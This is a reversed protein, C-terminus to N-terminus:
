AARKRARFVIWTAITLGLLLLTGLLWVLGPQSESANLDQLTVATPTFTWYYDEVEGGLVAGGLDIKQEDLCDGDASADPSLRARLFFERDPGTGDFTGAPVPLSFPTPGATVYVDELPHESADDFDGDTNWDIWFDLCGNGTTTITIPGDGDAWIGNRVVGDEDAGDGDAIANPQPGPEDDWTAGLYLGSDTHRADDEVNVYTQPLDGFDMPCDSIDEVESDTITVTHYGDGFESLSVSKRLVARTEGVFKAEIVYIFDPDESGLGFHVLLPDQSGHGRGGNVGRIGSIVNGACDKLVITAGIADRPATGTGFAPSDHLARIMLYAETNLNNIWLENGGVGQNFDQNILLDLDGDRDFDAFAAGEGNEAGVIGGNNQEFGLSGQELTNIFLFDEDEDTLFLDLDGDNDVDGCVVGDIDDMNTTDPATQAGAATFLGTSLGDQIFLENADADTWYLDFDGDNDFDCYAVGGKNENLTNRNVSFNTEFGAVGGSEMYTNKWLDANDVNQEQPDHGVLGKRVSIDVDGDRDFDTVSSFDGVNENRVGTGVPLGVDGPPVHNFLFNPTGSNEYLDIGFEHNEIFLDMDGDADYDLWGLGETNMGGPIPTGATSLELYLTFPNGGGNHQWIEIVNWTNRAFDLDGDNDFDAWVVSRERTNAFTQVLSYQPPSVSCDGRYLYSNDMTNVLVDLCDDDDYDAWAVGGDKDDNNDLGRNDQTFSTQAQVTHISSTLTLLLLSLIFLIYRKM